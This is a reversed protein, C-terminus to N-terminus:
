CSEGARPRDVTAGALPGAVLYPVWGFAVVLRDAPGAGLLTIATLPLALITVQSTLLSGDLWSRPKSFSPVRSRM